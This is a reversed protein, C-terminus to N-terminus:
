LCFTDLNSRNYIIFDILEGETLLIREDYVYVNEDSKEQASEACYDDEITEQIIEGSYVSDSNTNASKDRSNGLHNVFTVAPVAIIALVVAAAVINRFMNKAITAM